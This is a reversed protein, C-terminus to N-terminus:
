IINPMKVVIQNTNPPYAARLDMEGRWNGYADNKRIEKYIGSEAGEWPIDAVVLVEGSVPFAVETEGYENVTFPPGQQNVVYVWKGKYLEKIKEYPIQERRTDFIKYM